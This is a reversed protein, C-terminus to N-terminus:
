HKEAVSHGTVTPTASDRTAAILPVLEEKLRDFITRVQATKMGPEFDDLLTDYPDDGPPFCEVYRHKLEVLQELWPRFSEYDSDARAQVWATFSRSGTRTIEASLEPPVRVCKEYDGSGGGTM